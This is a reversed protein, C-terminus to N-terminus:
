GERTERAFIASPEDAYIFVPTGLPLGYEEVLRRIADNHIRICGHSVDTGLLEPQNTGHLGIVADGGEFTELAPSFGSLGYAYVGYLGHPDPPQLLERLYYVGDPTPRDSRGLAAVFRAQEEGKDFLAVIHEDLYVELSYRTSTMTVDSLRIYGTTGNPRVPLYVEIWEGAESKELFTLPTEAPVTLVDAANITMLVSGGPADFVDISSTVSTAIFYPQPGGSAAIEPIEGPTINPWPVGFPASPDNAAGCGALMSAFLVALAGAAFRTGRRSVIV